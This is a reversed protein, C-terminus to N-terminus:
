RLARRTHTGCHTVHAKTHVCARKAVLATPVCWASKRAYQLEQQTSMLSGAVIGARGTAESHDAWQKPSANDVLLLWLELKYTPVSMTFPVCTPSNYQSQPWVFRDITM